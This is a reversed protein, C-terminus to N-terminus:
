WQAVASGRTMKMRDGCHLSHHCDVVVADYKENWKIAITNAELSVSLKTIKTCYCRGIQSDSRGLKGPSDPGLKSGTLWLMDDYEFSSDLVVSISKSITM